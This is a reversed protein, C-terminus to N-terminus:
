VPHRSRWDDRVAQIDIGLDAWDTEMQGQTITGSKFSNWVKIADSVLGTVFDAGKKIVDPNNIIWSLVSLIAIPM